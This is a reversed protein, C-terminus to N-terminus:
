SRSCYHGEGDPGRHAIRDTMEKIVKKTPKKNNSIYGAIGCM